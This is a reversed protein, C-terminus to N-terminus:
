VGNRNHAQDLVASFRDAIRAYGAANPHVGDVLDSTESPLFLERGDVYQINEGEDLRETVIEELLSRTQALTLEGPGLDDEFAPSPIASVILMRVESHRERITDLFGHTFSRFTRERLLRGVVVNIGLELSILDAVGDRIACAVFPDLVAQGAYSMNILRLNHELAVRGPWTDTPGPAELGHSISSGYHVWVPRRDPRPQHMESDGALWELRCTATHPLWLEVRKKHTGLQDFEVVALPGDTIGGTTLGASDFAVVGAPVERRRTRLGDVVLDVVAPATWGEMRLAQCRLALQLVQASTEIVVRVGAATAVGFKMFPDAVRRQANVPLRQPVVGDPLLDCHLAGEIRAVDSPFGTFAAQTTM